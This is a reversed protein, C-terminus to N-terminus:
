HRNLVILDKSAFADALKYMCSCYLCDFNCFVALNEDGSLCSSTSLSKAKFQVDTLRKTTQHMPCCNFGIECRIQRM